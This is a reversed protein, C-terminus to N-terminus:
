RPSYQNAIIIKTSKCVEKCINTLKKAHFIAYLWIRFRIAFGIRHRYLTGSKILELRVNERSDTLNVVAKDNLEVM